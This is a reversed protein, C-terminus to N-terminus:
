CCACSTPTSFWFYLITGQLTCTYRALWLLVLGLYLGGLFGTIEKHNNEDSEM